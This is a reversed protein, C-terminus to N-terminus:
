DLAQPALFEPRVLKRLALEELLVAQGLVLRALLLPQERLGQRQVVVAQGM